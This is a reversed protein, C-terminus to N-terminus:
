RLFFFSYLGMPVVWSLWDMVGKNWLQKYFKRHIYFEQFSVLAVAAGLLAYLATTSVFLTRSLHAAFILFGISGALHFLQRYAELKYGYHGHGYRRYARAVAVDYSRMGRVWRGHLQNKFPYLRDPLTVLIQYVGTHWPRAKKM